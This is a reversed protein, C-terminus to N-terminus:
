KRALALLVEIGPTGPFMDLPVSRVPRYGQRRWQEVSRPLLDANCHIHLVKEPERHGLAAIVGEKPGQRPPDLLVDEGRPSPAPLLEKLSGATIQGQRFRTRGGAPNLRKNAVAADISPKETDVGQVQRYGGALYHSFLGYGCYLDLLRQGEAPALLSRAEQLMLPVVSENVQSFSTPHFLFRLGEHAVMLRQRGFLRKLNPLQPSQRAELYYPSASPDPYAFAAAVPEELNQLHGALLKLKRVLPGNLTDVNFIVAQEAYSGRIILHNLHDALVRFPPESIKSRLFRYIRGHTEPELPSALFPEKQEKPKTGALHLCLSGKRWAARRKSTTRYHRPLPSALVPDPAGPLGHRQWFIELARNKLELERKYELHVLPAGQWTTNPPPRRSPAPVLSLLLEHFSADQAEERSVPKGQGTGSPASHKKKGTMRCVKHSPDKPNM